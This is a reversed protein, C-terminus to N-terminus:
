ADDATEIGSARRVRWADSGSWGVERRARREGECGPRMWFTGGNLSAIREWDSLWPPCVGDPLERTSAYEFRGIRVVRLTPVDKPKSAHRTEGVDEDFHVFQPRESLERAIQWITPDREEATM